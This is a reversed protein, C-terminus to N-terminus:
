CGTTLSGTDDLRKVFPYTFLIPGIGPFHINCYVTKAEDEPLRYGYTNKWYRKIDKFSKFPSTEPIYRSINVLKGKKMSPLVHCWKDDISFEQIVYDKSNWFHNLVPPCIEFDQLKFTPMRVGVPTVALCIECKSVTLELKIANCRTSSSLFDRGQIYIDRCKNWLPAIKARLTYALCAQLVANTVPVPNSHKLGMKKFREQLKGTNWFGQHMVVFIFGDEM